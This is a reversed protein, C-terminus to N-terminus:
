FFKISHIKHRPPSTSVSPDAFGRHSPEIGERAEIILNDQQGPSPIPM